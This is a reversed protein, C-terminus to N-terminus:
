SKLSSLFIVCIFNSWQTEGKITIKSAKLEEEYKKKTEDTVDLKDSRIKLRDELQRNREELFSKQDILRKNEQEWLHISNRLSFSIYFILFKNNWYIQIVSSGKRFFWKKRRLRRHCRDNPFLRCIRNPRGSQSRKHAFQCGCYVVRLFLKKHCRVTELSASINNGQMHGFIEPAEDNRMLSWDEWYESRFSHDSALFIPSIDNEPDPDRTM